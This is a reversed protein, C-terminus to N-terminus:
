EVTSIIASYDIVVIKEAFDFQRTPDYHVMKGAIDKAIKDPVDCGVSLVQGKFVSRLTQHAGRLVVLGGATKEEAPEDFRLVVNKGIAQM